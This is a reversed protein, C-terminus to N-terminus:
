RGHSDGGEISTVGYTQIARRVATQIRVDLDGNALTEAVHETQEVVRATSEETKASSRAAAGAYLLAGTGSLFGLTNLLINLMRFLNETDKDYISLGVVSGILALIIVTACVLIVTNPAQKM